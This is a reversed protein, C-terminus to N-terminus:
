VRVRHANGQGLDQAVVEVDVDAAHVSLRAAPRRRPGPNLRRRPPCPPSRPCARPRPTRAPAAPSRCPRPGPSVGDPCLDRDAPSRAPWRGTWPSACRLERGRPRRCPLRRRSAAGQDCTCARASLTAARMRSWGVARRPRDPRRASRPSRRPWGPYRAPRASRTSGARAPGRRRGACTPAPSASGTRRCRRAVTNLWPTSSSSNRPGIARRHEIRAVARAFARRVEHGDLRRGPRRRNQLAGRTRGSVRAGRLQGGLRHQVVDVAQESADADIRGDVAPQM